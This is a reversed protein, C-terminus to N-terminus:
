MNLQFTANLPSLVFRFKLSPLIFGLLWFTQWKNSESCWFLSLTSEQHRKGWYISLSCPSLIDVEIVMNLKRLDNLLYVTWVNPFAIVAELRQQVWHLRAKFQVTYWTDMTTNSNTAVCNRWSVSGLASITLEYRLLSWLIVFDHRGNDNSTASIKIM